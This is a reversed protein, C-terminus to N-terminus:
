EFGLFVISNHFVRLADDRNVKNSMEPTELALDMIRNMELYSQFLFYGLVASVVVVISVIIATYKYQFAKDVVPISRRKNSQAMPVGPHCFSRFCLPSSCDRCHTPIPRKGDLM